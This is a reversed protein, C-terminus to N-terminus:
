TSVVVLTTASVSPRLAAAVEAYDKDQLDGVILPIIQFRGLCMQLFPLQMEVSHEREEATPLAHFLTHRALEKTVITDVPVEGLPTEYCDYSSICIGHFRAYHSPGIILVRDYTGGVITKFGCAAAPASYQYGAHPSILAATKGRLPPIEARDLQDVLMKKLLAPDGPYWSGALPSSRVKLFEGSTCSTPLSLLGLMLLLVVSSKYYFRPM